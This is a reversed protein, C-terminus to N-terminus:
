SFMEKLISKTSKHNDNGNKDAEQTYTSIKETNLRSEILQIAKKTEEKRPIIFTRKKNTIFAYVEESSYTSTIESFSTSNTNIVTELLKDEFIELKVKHEFYEDNLYMKEAKKTLLVNFLFSVYIFNALEFVWIILLTAILNNYTLIGSNFSKNRMFVIYYIIELITLAIFSKKVSRKKGNVFNQALLLNFSVFDKQTVNYDVEFLAFSEEVEEQLDLLM